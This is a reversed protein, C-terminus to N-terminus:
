APLVARSSFAFPTTRSIRVIFKLRQNLRFREPIVIFFRPHCGKSYGILSSEQILEALGEIRLLLRGDGIEDEM